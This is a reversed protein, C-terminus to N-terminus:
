PDDGASFRERPSSRYMKLSQASNQVLEKTSQMADTVVQAQTQKSKQGIKQGAVGLTSPYQGVEM